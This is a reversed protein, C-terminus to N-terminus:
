APEEESNRIRAMIRASLDVPLEFCRSETLVRLTKRTSDYLVNCTHCQQLHAELEQRLEAAVDDDLYGALEAMVERCSLM